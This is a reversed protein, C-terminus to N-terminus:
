ITQSKVRSLGKKSPRVANSTTRRVVNNAKGKIENIAKNLTYDTDFLLQLIVKSIRPNKRIHNNSYFNKETVKLMIAQPTRGNYPLDGFFLVYLVIALSWKDTQKALQLTKVERKIMKVSIFHPSGIPSKYNCKYKKDDCSTAFDILKVRNTVPNVVINSPKIDVHAMGVSHMRNVAQLINTAIEVKNRVGNSKTMYQFLDVYNPNYGTIIVNDKPYSQKLKYTVHPALLNLQKLIYVERNFEDTNSVEKMVYKVGQKEVIYVYNISNPFDQVVKYGDYEIPKNTNSGGPKFSGSSWSENAGRSTSSRSNGGPQFSGRKFSGSSITTSRNTSKSM